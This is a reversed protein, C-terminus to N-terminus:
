RTRWSSRSRFRSLGGFHSATSVAFFLLALPYASSFYLSDISHQYTAIQMWSLLIARALVAGALATTLIMASDISRRRWAQFWAWVWLGVSVVFLWRFVRQYAKGVIQRARHSLPPHRAYERERLRLAEGTAVPEGTMKTFRQLQWDSGSAEPERVSFHDFSVLFWIARFVAEALVLEDGSRWVPRLTVRSSLCELRSQECAENVERALRDYYGMAHEGSDYYGAAEVASRFAFMFRGGGMEGAPIKGAGGSSTFFQGIGGELYPKLERFAPSVRYVQSRTSRSVPVFRISEGSAVRTLAGHAAAYEGRKMETTAFVGYRYQNLLCVAGVLLLFVPIWASALGLRRSRDVLGSRWVGLISSGFILLVTPLIWVGEERTLWFAAMSVGLSASWVVLNRL